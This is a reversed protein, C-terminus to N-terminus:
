RRMGRNPEKASVLRAHRGQEIRMFDAHDGGDDALGSRALTPLGVRDAHVCIARAIVEGADVGLAEGTLKLILAVAPSLTVSFVVGAPAGAEALAGPGPAAADPCTETYHHFAAGDQSSFSPAAPEACPQSAAPLRPVLRGRFDSM